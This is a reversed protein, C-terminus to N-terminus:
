AGKEVKVFYWQQGNETIVWFSRGDPHMEISVAQGFVSVGLGSQMLNVIGDAAACAVCEVPPRVNRTLILTMHQGLAVQGM